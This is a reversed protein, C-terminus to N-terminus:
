KQLFPEPFDILPCFAPIEGTANAIIVRSSEGLTFPLNEGTLRCIPVYSIVAFAGKHGQNPCKNCSEIVIAKKM